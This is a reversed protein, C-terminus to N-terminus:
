PALSTKASSSVFGLGDVRLDIIRPAFAHRQAASKMSPMSAYHEAHEEILTATLARLDGWRKEFGETPLRVIWRHILLHRGGEVELHSQEVFHVIVECRGIREEFARATDIREIFLGIKESREQLSRLVELAKDIREGELQVGWNAAGPKLGIFLECLRKPSTYHDIPLLVQRHDIGAGALDAIRAIPQRVHLNIELRDPLCKQVSASEVALHAELCRKAKATSFSYLSTPQDSSLGLAEAVVDIPLHDGTLEIHRIHYLPDRQWQELCHLYLRWGLFPCLSFLALSIIFRRM